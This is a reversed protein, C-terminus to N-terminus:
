ANTDDVVQLQKRVAMDSAQKAQKQRQESIEKYDIMDEDSILLTFKFDLPFDTTAEVKLKLRDYVKFCINSLPEKEDPPNGGKKRSVYNMLDPSCSIPERFMCAMMLENEEGFFETRDIRPDDKVKLTQHVNIEEIYISISQADLDFILSNYVQPGEQKLLLCHFLRQCDKGAKRANLSKESCLDAYHAYDINEILERTKEREKLSITLLRHVLLDAYRRIPSTFHTYIPFNLGYHLYEEPEKDDVTM